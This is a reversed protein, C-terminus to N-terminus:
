SFDQEYLPPEVTKALSQARAFRAFPEEVPFLRFDMPQASRPHLFALRYSRLAMFPARLRSGYKGDGLIPYGRASLQARIQHTRGTFLRIKLLSVPTSLADSFPVTDLRAYSLVATDAGRRPTKVVFTKGSGRDRFLFDQLITADQVPAGSVCALYEKVFARHNSVAASLAAAARRSRAFVMLGGVPRDLRHIPFIDGGLQASLLEVLGDEGQVDRQSLVGCPKDCVVIDEDTYLAHLSASM